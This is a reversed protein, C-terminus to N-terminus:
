ANVWSYWSNWIVTVSTALTPTGIVMLLYALCRHVRMPRDGQHDKNLSLHNAAEWCNM